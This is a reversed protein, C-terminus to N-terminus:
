WHYLRILPDIAISFQIEFHRILIKSNRFFFLFFVISFYHFSDRSLPLQHLIKESFQESTMKLREIESSKKNQDTLKDCNETGEPFYPINDSTNKKVAETQSLSESISIPKIEEDLSDVFNVAKESEPLESNEVSKTDSKKHFTEPKDAISVIGASKVHNEELSNETSMSDQLLQAEFDEDCIESESIEDPSNEHLTEGPLVIENQLKRKQTSLENDNEKLKKQDEFLMDSDSITSTKESTTIQRLYYEFATPIRINKEKRAITQFFIKNVVRQM